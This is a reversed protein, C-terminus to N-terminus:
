VTIAHVSRVLRLVAMSEIRRFEEQVRVGFRHGTLKLPAIRKETVRDTVGILIKRAVVLIAGGARRLGHDDVRCQAPAVVSRRIRGQM